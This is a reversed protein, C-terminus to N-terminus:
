RRGAAVPVTTWGFLLLRSKDLMLQLMMM